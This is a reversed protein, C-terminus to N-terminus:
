SRGPAGGSVRFALIGLRYVRTCAMMSSGSFMQVQEAVIM